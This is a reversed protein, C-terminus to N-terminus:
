ARGPRPPCAVTSKLHAGSAARVRERVARRGYHWAYAADPRPADVVTRSPLPAGLARAARDALEVQGAATAHIRDAWVFRAGGFDDLRVLVAGAEEAARALADNAAAISSPRAPRFASEVPVTLVVVRACRERLVDLM